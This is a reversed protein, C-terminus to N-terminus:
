DVAILRVHRGKCVQVPHTPQCYSVLAANAIDEFCLILATPIEAIAQEISPTLLGYDPQGALEDVRKAIREALSM